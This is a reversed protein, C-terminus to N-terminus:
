PKALNLRARLTNYRPDGHLDDLIPEVQLWTVYFCHQDIARNLYTFTENRDGLRLYDVGMEYPACRDDNQHQRFAELHARWYADWGNRKYALSLNATDLKPRNDRLATLYHAVAEDHMGKQEYILGMYGDFSGSRNPEMEAARELLALGEDYRRAFYLTVGLRRTMFFSLPDLDLARRMHAVAEDRRGVADLYAAYKMEAMSNNPNLEIGRKLNKEAEQWNWEYLTQISGLSTYAEGNEPDLEIARNAAALAKQEADEIRALGFTPEADLADALGAYASAYTPEITIAQQFYAESRLFNEKQFFYRGRLYADHASPDIGKDRLYQRSAPTLVARAQSAIEAAVSDQLSLIDTARGEFSQAWLHKDTKTDILQATIRVRDGSRVVSGEVIADVSLENAIQQLPKHTGKEQMVSTRSVVRLDHIRALETTLEDTMGDAFYDQSPDGSLNELPLVALSHIGKAAHLRKQVLWGVAAVILATCGIMVAVRLLGRRKAPHDQEPQAVSGAAAATYCSERLLRIEAIFRYGVTPVTEIFRPERRDDDLAKRLLGVCRALAGETVNAEQWVGNLIDQKRVLRNHNQILYLLLRLAKPELAIAEGDASLRFNMDDVQFRDFQYIM